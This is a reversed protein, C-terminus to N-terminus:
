PCGRPYVTVRSRWEGEEPGCPVAGLLGCVWLTRGARLVREAEAAALPGATGVAALVPAGRSRLAAKLGAPRVPAPSM